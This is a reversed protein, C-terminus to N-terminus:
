VKLVKFRCNTWRYFAKRRFLYNFYFTHLICLQLMCHKSSFVLLLSPPLSNLLGSISARLVLTAPFLFVMELHGWRQWSARLKWMWPCSTLYHSRGSVSSSTRTTRWWTPQCPATSATPWRSPTTCPTRWWPGPPSPPARCWSRATFCAQCVIIRSFMLRLLLASSSNHLHVFMSSWHIYINLIAGLKLQVSDILNLTLNIFNTRSIYGFNLSNCILRFVNSQWFNFMTMTKYKLNPRM